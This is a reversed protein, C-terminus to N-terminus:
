VFILPRFNVKKGEPAEMKYYRFLETFFYLGATLGAGKLVELYDHSVGSVYISFFTFGLLVIARTFTGIWFDFDPSRM